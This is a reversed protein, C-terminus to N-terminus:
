AQMSRRWSGMCRPHQAPQAALRNAVLRLTLYLCYHYNIQSISDKYRAAIATKGVVQSSSCRELHAM